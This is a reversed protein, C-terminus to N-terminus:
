TPQYSGFPRRRAFFQPVPWTPSFVACFSLAFSVASSIVPV